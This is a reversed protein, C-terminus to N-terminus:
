GERENELFHTNEFFKREHDDNQAYDRDQALVAIPYWESRMYEREKV